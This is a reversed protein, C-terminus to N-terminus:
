EEIPLAACFGKFYDHRSGIDQPFFYIDHQIYESGLGGGAHKKVLICPYSSPLDKLATKEGYAHSEIFESENEVFVAKM